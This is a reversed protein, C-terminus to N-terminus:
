VLRSFSYALMVGSFEGSWMGFTSALGIVLSSSSGLVGYVRPALSRASRFVILCWLGSSDFTSSSLSNVGSSQLAVAASAVLYVAGPTEPIDISARLM